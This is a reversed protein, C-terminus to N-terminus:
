SAADNKEGEGATTGAQLLTWIHDAVNEWERAVEFNWLRFVRYGREALWASRRADYAAQEPEAHQGGDLELILKRELCVFDVIYPGLPHQRRFKYGGLKERRVRAWVFKETETMNKRLERARDRNPHNMNGGSVCLHEGGVRRACLWAAVEGELPSTLFFIAKQEAVTV